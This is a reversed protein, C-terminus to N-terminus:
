LENYYQDSKKDKRKLRPAFYGNLKKVRACESISVNCKCFSRDM